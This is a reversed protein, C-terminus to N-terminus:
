YVYCPLCLLVFLISLGSIGGFICYNYWGRKRRTQPNRYTGALLAENLEDKYLQEEEPSQKRLRVGMINWWNKKARKRRRRRAFGDELDEEQFTDSIDFSNLPKRVHPSSESIADDYDNTLAQNHEPSESRIPSQTATPSISKAM